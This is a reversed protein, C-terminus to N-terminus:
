GPVRVGERTRTGLGPVPVRGVDSRRLPCPSEDGAATTPWGYSARFAAAAREMEDPGRVRSATAEVVVHADGLDTALVCRGTDALDRTKRAAANTAVYCRESDWAAFVPVVHPIGRPSVTTLWFVHHGSAFSERVSKWDFPVTEGRASAAESGM